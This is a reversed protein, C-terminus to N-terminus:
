HAGATRGRRALWAGAAALGAFVAGGGAYLPWWSRGAPVAGAVAAARAANAIPAEPMAAAPAAGTEGPDGSLV